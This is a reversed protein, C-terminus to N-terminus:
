LAPRGSALRAVASVALEAAEAPLDGAAVRQALRQSPELPPLLSEFLAAIMADDAWGWWEQRVEPTSPPSVRLRHVVTDWADLDVAIPVLEGVLPNSVLSAAVQPSVALTALLTGRRVAPEEVGDGSWRRALDEVLEAAAPDSDRVLELFGTPDPLTEAPVAAVTDLVAAHMRALLVAPDPDPLGSPLGLTRRLAQVGPLPGVEDLDVTAPPQGPVHIVAAATGDRLVGVTLRAADHSVREVWSLVVGVSDEPPEWAILAALPDPEALMAPVSTAQWRVEAFPLYVPADGGHDPLDEPLSDDQDADVFRLVWLCPVTASRQALVSGLLLVTRTLMGTVAEDRAPAPPLEEHSDM